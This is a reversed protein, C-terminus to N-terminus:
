ASKGFKVVNNRLIGISSVEIYVKDGDQHPIKAGPNSDDKDPEKMVVGTGTSLLAGSTFMEGRGDDYLWDVLETFTRKMKGISTQASFAKSGDSRIVTVKIDQARMDEESMGVVVGPGFGFCGKFIKAQPLYLPNQAEIDTATFDNGITYGVIKKDPSIVFVLEAETLTIDSKKPIYLNEGPGASSVDGTKGKDFLEPRDATYVKAYFGPQGSEAERMFKSSEYTVGAGWVAPKTLPRLLDILTLSYSRHPEALKRSIDEVPDSNFLVDEPKIHNEDGLVHIKNEGPKVVGTYTSRSTGKFSFRVLNYVPSTSLSM